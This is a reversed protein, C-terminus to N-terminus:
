CTVPFSHLPIQHPLRISNVHLVTDELDSGLLQVVTGAYILAGGGRAVLNQHFILLLRCFFRRFIIKKIYNEAEQVNKRGTREFLGELLKQM